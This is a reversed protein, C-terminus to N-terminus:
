DRPRALLASRTSPRAAARGRRDAAELLRRARPEDDPTLQAARRSTARRPRTRAAAAPTWRPPRSRRPSRRTPRSRARRWTGPASRAATRRPPPWRARARRAARGRPARPLRDLAAAPPPVRREGDALTVSGRRRPPELDALTLELERLGASRDRDLRRTRAAAALLLARRTATPLATSARAPVRARRRHGPAAAGRAARAGRLQGDSLLRPIELLALPNGAPPRWSGTPSRRRSASSRRPTLLARAETTPSRSSGCGSWGRCRSGAVAHGRAARRADRRGRRRAPPRRVPVGGAVARRAVARRRDVALM